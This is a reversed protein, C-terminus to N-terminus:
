RQSDNLRWDYDLFDLSRDGAKIRLQAKKDDTLLEAYDGLLSVVSHHGRFGVFDGGYWDFIKSVELQDSAPNYRNRSRDSLFRRLSDELQVDLREAVFAENRLAPCGISACVLAVHIRPEDFVGPQRILGQELDDLSRKKGLLTFFRKKWPSSFLSGLDKISTLDPYRTLILEITFANYANILFSLQQQKNWGAYEQESVSTLQKLYGELEIPDQKITAYDVRSAVGKADWHVHRKLLADWGAHSQDFALSSSPLAGLLLLWILPIFIKM